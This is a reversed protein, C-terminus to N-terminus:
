PTWQIDSISVSGAKWRDKLLLYVEGPMDQLMFQTGINSHSPINAEYKVYRCNPSNDGWSKKVSELNDYPVVGDLPSHFFCFRAGAPPNWYESDSKYNLANKRLCRHLLKLKDALKKDSPLTGDKFYAYTAPTLVSEATVNGNKSLKLEDPHAKAYNVVMDDLGGTGIDKSAIGDFIGSKIFGPSLYDELKGGAVQMERDSDVMGKIVLAPACPMEMENRRVYYQLTAYPDYPGDGCVAGAFNLDNYRTKHELWYRYSAAALAGGQSYGLSVTKFGKAMTKENKEYWLYGAQAADICQRAQVERNLYPHAKNRTSGYGEYDPMVVLCQAPDTIWDYGASILGLVINHSAWQGVIIRVDTALDLNNYNTPREKDSSVTCHCGLIIHDPHPNRFIPDWPWAVLASASIKRGDAGLTNYNIVRTELLVKHLMAEIAPSLDNSGDDEQKRVAEEVRKYLADKCLRLWQLVSDRAPDNGSSIEAIMDEYLQYLEISQSSELQPELEEITAEEDIVLEQKHCSTIAGVLLLCLLFATLIRYISKNM